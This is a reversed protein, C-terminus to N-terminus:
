VDIGAANKWTNTVSNWWIPLGLSSDYFQQGAIPASPRQATSGSSVYPTDSVGTCAIVRRSGSGIINNNSTNGSFNCAIVKTDSSGAGCNLGYAQNLSAM